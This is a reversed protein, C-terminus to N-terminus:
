AAGRRKSAAWALGQANLDLDVALLERDGADFSLGLAGAVEDLRAQLGRKIHAEAEEAAPLAVAENMLAESADIWARLQGAVHAVDTVEGFHTLCARTTGLAVIKDISARAEAADFDTPSTSPYAFRGVRQLRPYVLGFADGTFVADYAPDHVVFHHNAHGRTHLFSLTADGLPVTAGDDLSRVRAADIPSLTGYLADFREAGYVARASAVLKAPDILHRAARPHALLTAQPCAAMLASAGGAHDLHAHTVIVYRVQEPTMGADALARLLAPVNKATCTEIFAAEDGQIRLYAAALQPALYDCDITLCRPTNM